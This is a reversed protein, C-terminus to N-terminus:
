TLVWFFFLVFNVMPALIILKSVLNSRKWYKICWIILCVIYTVFSVVCVAAILLGYIIVEGIDTSGSSLFMFILFMLMDIGIIIGSVRIAIKTEKNM